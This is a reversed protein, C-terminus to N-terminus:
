SQVALAKLHGLFVELSVDDTLIVEGPGATSAHTSSPNLKILLFRSQSRGAVTHKDADVVRPV